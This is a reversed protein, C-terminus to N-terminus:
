MSVGHFISPSKKELVRTKISNHKRINVSANDVGFGVCNIWPIENEDKKEDIKEFLCSSYRWGSTFYSM